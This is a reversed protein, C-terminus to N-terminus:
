PTSTPAGAAAEWSYVPPCQRTAFDFALPTPVQFRAVEEATLGRGVRCAAARRLDESRVLYKRATGESSATLIRTGAPSFAASLVQATDGSLITLYYPPRDPLGKGRRDYAGSLELLCRHM